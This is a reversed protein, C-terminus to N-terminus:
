AALFVSNWSYNIFFQDIEIKFTMNSYLSCWPVWPCRFSSSESRNTVLIDSEWSYNILHTDVFNGGPLSKITIKFFTVMGNKLRTQLFARYPSYNVSLSGVIQKQFFKNLLRSFLTNNLSTTKLSSWLTFEVNNLSKSVVVM